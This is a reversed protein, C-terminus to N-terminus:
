QNGHALNNMDVHISEVGGDLLPIVRFVSPSRHRDTTPRFVPAYNGGGAIFGSTPANM